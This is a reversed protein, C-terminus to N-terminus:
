PRVLTPCADSVPAGIPLSWYRDLDSPPRNIRIAEEGEAQMKNVTRPLETKFADDGVFRLTLSRRRGGPPMGGGGHLASPHFILLDGPRSPWGVIDWRDREAEIDPLRPLGNGEFFPATDDGPDFKSANYITGRHSGRVVELADDRSLADLGIWVVVSKDGSMPQYSSDQHWPTRRAAQAGGEKFFLQEEFYWVPGDEFLAAVVEAIRTQQLMAHFAPEASSDGKAQFFRAGSGAYLDIGWAGAHDLKWDFAHQVLAVEEPPLVGPIHVVGDQRFTRAYDALTRGDFRLNSIASDQMM